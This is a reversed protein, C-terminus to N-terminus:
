HTNIFCLSVIFFYVLVAALYLTPQLVLPTLADCVVAQRLFHLNSLFLGFKIVTIASDLYFQSLKFLKLIFNACM